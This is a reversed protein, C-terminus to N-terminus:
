LLMEGSMDTILRYLIYLVDRRKKRRHREDDRKAPFPACCLRFRSIRRQFILVSIPMETRREPRIDARSIPERKGLSM